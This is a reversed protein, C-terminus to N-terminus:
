LWDVDLIAAGRFMHLNEGRDSRIHTSNKQHEIITGRLESPDPPAGIGMQYHWQVYIKEGVPISFLLEAYDNPVVPYTKVAVM